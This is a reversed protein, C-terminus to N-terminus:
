RAVERAAPEGASCQRALAAPREPEHCRAFAAFTEHPGSRHGLWARLLGGVARPAEAAPVDRLVLRGIGAEDAFGGGVHLHYGEVQEEEGVSVKAGLLGIDAVLHQACSHPCGTLQINVPQDLPLVAELHEAIALAHSKTDSAAFRCGRNGTCAVLGARVPSARTALGAAELAELVTPLDRDAVGSLLLNQWVALRIEGDGFRRALDALTRMQPVTLRGVPLGVGIWSSGPQRQRHVGLHALRDIPPAPELYDLPLSPLPRGLRRDLEALFRELGWGDLLYELRAESRDTRDGHELWLRVIADAVETTAEPAVVRGTDRAIDRHGSIGGVALRYWPGAAIPAGDRVRVATFGIDNTEALTPIVGGGEFAVDFKRPLGYLARCNLVHHHWARAQPRTDLIEQPDIGATASGTVDRINDAGAGKPVIGVEVLRELVLPGDQPRIGRLQLNARTTVHAYGGARQEALEAVAALQDHRLIGNPVRPRCMYGEQAPAVFFLGHYRWRFNDEPKPRSGALARARLRAYADLPHAARKWRERDVLEGGATEVRAQAELMPADPGSPAAGAAPQPQGALLARVAAAGSAHGELWRKQEGTFEGSM